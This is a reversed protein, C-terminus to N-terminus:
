GHYEGSVSDVIAYPVVKGDKGVYVQYIGSGLEEYHDPKVGREKM